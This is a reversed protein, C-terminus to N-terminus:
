EDRWREQRDLFIPTLDDGVMAVSYWQGPAIVAVPPLEIGTGLAEGDEDLEEIPHVEAAFMLAGGSVTVSDADVYLMGKPSVESSVKVAYTHVGYRPEHVNM